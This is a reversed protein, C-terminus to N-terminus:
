HLTLAELVLVWDGDGASNNGPPSFQRDGSNAFPSGPEDIYRASTPDYWRATVPGALKSMDVTITRISPMYAMVLSGDSTRAAAAYTNTTVSGFSSIRRVRSVIKGILGSSKGGAYASFRGIYGACSDYGATVVTHTQDPVLEYWKRAAFLAKMYSLQTVGPTDLNEQWGPELRWTYASGYVQGTAGSLM